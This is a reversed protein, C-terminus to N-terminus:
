GRWSTFRGESTEILDGLAKAITPNDLYLELCVTFHSVGQMKARLNDLYTLGNDTSGVRDITQGEFPGFPIKTTAAVKFTIQKQPM